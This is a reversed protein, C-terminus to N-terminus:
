NEKPSKIPYDSRVITATAQQECLKSCTQFTRRAVVPNIGAFGQPAHSQRFLYFSQDTLWIASEM